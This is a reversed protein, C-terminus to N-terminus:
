QKCTISELFFYLFITIFIFLSFIQILKISNQDNKSTDEQLKTLLNKMEELEYNTNEHNEKMMKKAEMLQDDLYYIFDDMETLRKM